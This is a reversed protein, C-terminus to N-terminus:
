RSVLCFGRASTWRPNYRDNTPPSDVLRFSCIRSIKLDIFCRYATALTHTATAPRLSANVPEAAKTALRPPSASCLNRDTEDAETWIM